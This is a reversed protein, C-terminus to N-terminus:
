CCPKERKIGDDKLALGRGTETKKRQVVLRVAEDFIEKLGKQWLASCEM